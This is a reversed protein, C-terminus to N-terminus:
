WARKLVALAYTENKLNLDESSAAPARPWQTMKWGKLHKRLKHHASLNQSLLASRCTLVM